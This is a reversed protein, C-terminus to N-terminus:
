CKIPHGGVLEILVVAECGIKPVADSILVCALLESVRNCSHSSKHVCSLVHHASKEVWLNQTAARGSAM